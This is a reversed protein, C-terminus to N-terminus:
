LYSNYYSQKSSKYIRTERDLFFSDAMLAKDNKDRKIIHLYGEWTADNYAFKFLYQDEKNPFLVSALEDMEDNYHNFFIFRDMADLLPKDEMTPLPKNMIVLTTDKQKLTPLSEMIWRMLKEDELKIGTFKDIILIKYGDRSVFEDLDASHKARGCPLRRTMFDTKCMQRTTYYLIHDPCKSSCSNIHRELIRVVSNTKTLGGSGNVLMYFPIPIDASSVSAQFSM